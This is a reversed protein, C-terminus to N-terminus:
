NQLFDRKQVCKSSLSPRVSSCIYLVLSNLRERERSRRRLLSFLLLMRAVCFALLGCLFGPSCCCIVFCSLVIHTGYSSYRRRISHFGGFRASGVGAPAIIIQPQPAVSAPYFTNTGGAGGYYAAGAPYSTAGYQNQPPATPYANQPPYSKYEDTAYYPPPPDNMASIQRM